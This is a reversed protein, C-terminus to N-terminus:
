EAEVMFCQPGNWGLNSSGIIHFGCRDKGWNQQEQECKSGGGRAGGRKTGSARTGVPWQEHRVVNIQHHWGVADEIKGGNVNRCACVEGQPPVLHVRWDIKKRRTIYRNVSDDIDRAILSQSRASAFTSRSTKVAASRRGIWDRSAIAVTWSPPFASANIVL